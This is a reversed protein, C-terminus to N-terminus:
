LRLNIFAFNASNGFGGLFFLLYVLHYLFPLDQEFQESEPLNKIDIPAIDRHQKLTKAYLGAKRAM